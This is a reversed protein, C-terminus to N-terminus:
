DTQQKRAETTREASHRISSRNLYERSKTEMDRM